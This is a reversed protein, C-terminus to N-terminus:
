SAQPRPSSALALGAAVLVALGGLIMVLALTSLAGSKLSASAFRGILLLSLVLAMILGVKPKKGVLAAGAFLIVGSAGGAVLSAVSGASLFGIFGGILAVLGYAIALGAAVKHSTRM